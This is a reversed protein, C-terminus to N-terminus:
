PAVKLGAAEIAQIVEDSRMWDGDPHTGMPDGDQWGENLREPLEIVLSERSAQWGWWAGQAQYSRYEGDSGRVMYEDLVGKPIPGGLKEQIHAAYSLEFEERMKEINM